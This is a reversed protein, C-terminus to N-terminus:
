PEGSVCQSGGCAASEHHAHADTWDPTSAVVTAVPRPEGLESGLDPDPIGRLNSGFPHALLLRIM